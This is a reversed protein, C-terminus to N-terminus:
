WLMHGRLPFGDPEIPKCFLVGDGVAEVCVVVSSLISFELKEQQDKDVKEM